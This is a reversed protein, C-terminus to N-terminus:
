PARLLAAGRAANAAAEPDAVEVVVELGQGGVAAALYAAELNIGAMALREAVLALEGPTNSIPLAVVPRREVVFGERSLAAEAAAPDDTLFRVVSAGGVGAVSRINVNARGIAGAAAALSGPRDQLKM